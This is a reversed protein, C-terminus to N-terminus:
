SLVVGNLIKESEEEITKLNHHCRELSFKITTSELTAHSVQWQRYEIDCARVLTDVFDKVDKMMINVNLVLLPCQYPSDPLDEWTAVVRVLQSPLSLPM